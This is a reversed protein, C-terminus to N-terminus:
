ETKVMRIVEPPRGPTLLRCFYIGPPLSSGDFLVVHLGEDRFANLPAALIRGPVSSIELTVESASALRFPISTFHSFPNPFNQMFFGKEPLEQEIDSYGLAQQYVARNNKVIMAVAGPIKNEQIAEELFRTVLNLSDAYMGNEDPQGPEFAQRQEAHENYSTCAFQFSLLLALLILRRIMIPLNTRNVLIIGIHM